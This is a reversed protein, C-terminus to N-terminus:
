RRRFQKKFNLVNVCRVSGLEIIFLDETAAPQIGLFNSGAVILEGQKVCYGGNPQIYKVQISKGIFRMLYDSLSYPWLDPASSDDAQKKETVVSKGTIIDDPNQFIRYSYNNNM